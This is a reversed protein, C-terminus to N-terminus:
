RFRLWLEDNNVKKFIGTWKGGQYRALPEWYRAVGELAAKQFEKLRQEDDDGTYRKGYSPDCLVTTTTGEFTYDVVIHNPFAKQSPPTSNQGEVGPKDNVLHWYRRDQPAPTMENKTGPFQLITAKWEPVPDITWDKIILLDYQPDNPLIERLQINGKAGNVQLTLQLLKAWAECRGTRKPNLLLGGAPDDPQPPGILTRSNDNFTTGKGDGTNKYYYCPEVQSSPWLKIGVSRSKFIAWTKEFAEDPTKAGGERCALDVVANFRKNSALSGEELCVYVPTASKTNAAVPEGTGHRLKWQIEFSNFFKTENDLSSITSYLNTATVVTGEETIESSAQVEDFGNEDSGEGSAYFPGELECNPLLFKVEAVTIRNGGKYLYPYQVERDDKWHPAQFAGTGDDKLIDLGDGYGVEKLIPQPM